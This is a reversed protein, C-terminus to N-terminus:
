FYNFSSKSVPEYLKLILEAASIALATFDISFAVLASALEMRVYPLKSAWISSIKEEYISRSEQDVATKILKNYKYVQWYKWKRFLRNLFIKPLLSIVSFSIVCLFVTCGLLLICNNKLVETKLSNSQIVPLISVAVSLLYMMSVSFFSMSIRSSIHVLDRLYISNWPFDCTEECEVEANAVLRTFFCFVISAFFSFYNIVVGISFLLYISVIVIHDWISNGNTFLKLQICAYCIIGVIFGYLLLFLFKLTNEFRSCDKTWPFPWVLNKFKTYAPEYEKKTEVFLSKLTSISHIHKLFSYIWVHIAGLLLMICVYNNWSFATKEKSIAYCSMWGITILVYIIIFSGACINLLHNHTDINNRMKDIISICKVKIPGVLYDKEVKKDFFKSVAGKETESQNSPTQQEYM